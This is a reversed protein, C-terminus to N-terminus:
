FNLDLHEIAFPKPAASKNQPVLRVSNLMADWDAQIQDLRPDDTTSSIFTSYFGYRPNEPSFPGASGDHWALMLIDLDPQKISSRAEYGPHGGVERNNPSNNAQQDPRLSLTFSIESMPLGGDQSFKATIEYQLSSKWDEIDIHGYRTALSRGPPLVNGGVWTFRPSFDLAWDILAKQKDALLDTKEQDDPWAVRESYELNLAPQPLVMDLSMVLSKAPPAEGVIVLGYNNPGLEKIDISAQRGMVETIDTKGFVAKLKDRSYTKAPFRRTAQAPIEKVTIGAGKNPGSLYFVTEISQLKWFEPLELAANGVYHTVLPAAVTTPEPEAAAISQPEAIVTSPHIELASKHNKAYIVIAVAAVYLVVATIVFNKNIKFQPM